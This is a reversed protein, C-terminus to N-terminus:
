PTVRAVITFSPHPVLLAAADVLRMNPYFGRTSLVTLFLIKNSPSIEACPQLPFMRAVYLKVYTFVQLYVYRYMNSQVYIYTHICIYTYLYICTFTSFVLCIGSHVTSGNHTSRPFLCSVRSEIIVHTNCHAATHQLTNCHTATQQLTNCHTVTHQLKNCHTATHQLTNCQTATHQMTNSHTAIHQLTNPSM